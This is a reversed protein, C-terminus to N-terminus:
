IKESSATDTPGYKEEYLSCRKGYHLHGESLNIMINKVSDKSM